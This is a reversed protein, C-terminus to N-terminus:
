FIGVCIKYIPTQIKKIIITAISFFSFVNCGIIVTQPITKRFACNSTLDASTIILHTVTICYNCIMPLHFM